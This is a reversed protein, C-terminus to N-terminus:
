IAEMDRIRIENGTVLYTDVSGCNPCTKAYQTTRYTTRCARCYTVAELVILELEAEQLFKTKKKAWDFADIFLSPVIASVEGIEVRLKTVKRVDNEEAAQETQDIVQMVIGLEHM